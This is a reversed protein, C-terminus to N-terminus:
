GGPGEDTAFIRRYLDAGYSTELPEGEILRFTRTGDDRREARLFLTRDAATEVCGHAFEYLHTVFVVRVGKELLASVVQRALEAGERENTAAFSENCLLMSGSALRDAIDSMRALEEDLKGSKMTADEERKYHTFVGTCLSATFSEAAVFMGCQTMLQALGIARLFSSKGGQNAGTIIVLPKGDADMANGVVARGMQLALCPDYLGRARLTRDGVPIPRPFCIPEGAAALRDRLNLCGVYFALETRLMRFFALMHDASQALANAVLNIGRAQLDALARAGAEDRDALRFTYPSRGNGLILSWWPAREGGAKRVVYGRGRNGEGLEASLLMGHRFRLAQLQEQVRALYPDSLEHALTACLATFGDSEFRGAHACALDRVARLSAVFLDLLEISGHLISGPHKSYIGFYRRREKDIAEGALDYLRRVVPPNNLCDQLVAQRYRITDADNQVGAIIARRAVTALLEDDGAMARVVTELELDQTLTPADWRGREPPDFDRDRHM